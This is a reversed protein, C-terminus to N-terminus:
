VTISGNAPLLKEVILGITQTEMQSRCEPDPARLLLDVTVKSPPPINVMTCKSSMHQHHLHEFEMVERCGIACRVLLSNLVKMIVPPPLRLQYATVPGSGCPCSLISSDEYCKITCRERRQRKPLFSKTGGQGKNKVFLFLRM